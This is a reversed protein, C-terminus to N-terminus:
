VILIDIKLTYEGAQNGTLTLTSTGNGTATINVQTAPAVFSQDVVSVGTLNSILNTDTTYFAFTETETSYGVPNPSVATVKYITSVKIMYARNAVTTFTALPGIGGLTTTITRENTGIVLNTLSLPAVGSNVLNLGVFTPNSTTSLSQNIVINGSTANLTITNANQPPKFEFFTGTSDTRMYGAPNIAPNVPVPVGDSSMINLGAGGQLAISAANGGQNIDILTDKIQTNTTQIANLLGMINVTSSTGGITITTANSGINMTAAGLGLNMISGVGPTPVDLSTTNNPANIVLDNNRIRVLETTPDSGIDIIQALAVGLSLASPTAPYVGLIPPDVTTLRGATTSTLVNGMIELTNTNPTDGITIVDSNVTFATTDADTGITFTNSIMTISTTNATNGITITGANTAGILLPGGVTPSDISTIFIPGVISLSGEIDVDALVDITGNLGSPHKM